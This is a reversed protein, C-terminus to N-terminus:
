HLDEPKGSRNAQSSPFFRKGLCSRFLDHCGVLLDFDVAPVSLFARLRLRDRPLGPLSEIRGLMADPGGERDPRPFILRRELRSEVGPGAIELRAVLDLLVEDIPGGLNGLLEVSDLAGIHDPQGGVDM